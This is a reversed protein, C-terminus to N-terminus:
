PPLANTLGCCATRACVAHGGASFHNFIPQVSTNCEDNWEIWVVMEDHVGGGVGDPEVANEAGFGLADIAGEKIGIGFRFPERRVAESALHM